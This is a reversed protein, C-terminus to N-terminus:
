SNALMAEGGAVPRGIVATAGEGGAQRVAGPASRAAEAEWTRQMTVSCSSDAQQM